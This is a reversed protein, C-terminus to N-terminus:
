GSRLRKRKRSIQNGAMEDKRRSFTGATVNLRHTHTHTYQTHTHTHLWNFDVEFQTTMALLVGLSADIIDGIM